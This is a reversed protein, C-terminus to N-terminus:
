IDWTLLRPGDPTTCGPMRQQLRPPPRGQQAATMCDSAAAKDNRALQVGRAKAIPNM